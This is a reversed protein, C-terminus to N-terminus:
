RRNAKAAEIAADVIEQLTWDRDEDTAALTLYPADPRNRDAYIRQNGPYINLLWGFSIPSIQYHADTKRVLRLGNAEAKAQAAPFADFEADRRVAADIQKHRRYQKWYNTEESM